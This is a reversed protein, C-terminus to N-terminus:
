SPEVLQVDLEIDITNGLMSDPVNAFGIGFDTRRIRGAARFGARRTGDFSDALGGFTVDLTFPRTVTGITLRGDALWGDAVSRIRDSVFTVTPRQEIDLLDASRLHEDRAANATDISAMEVSAALTSTDLTDGVVLSADFRNFRGRVLSIGLSSVAFGVSSHTPELLWKGSRLALANSQTTASMFALTFAGGCACFAGAIRTSRPGPDASAQM